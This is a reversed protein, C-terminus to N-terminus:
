DSTNAGAVTEALGLYLLVDVKAGCRGLWVSNLVECHPKPSDAAGPLLPGSYSQECYQGCGAPAAWTPKSHTVRASHSGHKCIVGAGPLLPGRYYRGVSIGGWPVLKSTASNQM